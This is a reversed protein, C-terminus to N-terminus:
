PTLMETGCGQAVGTFTQVPLRRAHARQEYEEVTLSLGDLM